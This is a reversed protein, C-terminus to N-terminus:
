GNKFYLLFVIPSTLLTTLHIDYRIFCVESNWYKLNHITDKIHSIKFRYFLSISFVSGPMLVVQM